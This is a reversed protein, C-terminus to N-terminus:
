LETVRLGENEIRLKRLTWGEPLPPDCGDTFLGIITPGAGSLFSALAGRSDFAGVVADYDRILPRRYPQHLRDDILRLKDADRLAFAAFTTVARQLSYVADARSYFEPLAKRARATQLPFDPTAAYVSLGDIGDCRLYEVRGGDTVACATVGGAIAPVVNDPHGDLEACLNIMDPVGLPKGLVENAAAVGLVVCSASSGLGSASPIDGSQKLYINVPRGCIDFVRKASSYVLNKRDRLGADPGEGRAGVTVENYLNLAFGMCDLGAGINASTASVRIRKM